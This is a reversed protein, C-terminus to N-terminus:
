MKESHALARGGDLVERVKRAFAGPSFPKALFEQKPTSGSQKITTAAYGSMYLIKLEPRSPALQKALEQGGMQPMVVDTILLHIPGPHKQSMLVADTGHSAALIHYGQQDLISHVMHRLSEEDEVILVTESGRPLVNSNEVPLASKAEETRPLYVKFTTGRDLESYVWIDGESQKIIGYVSSLGLGTGKGEEKTTFFPEFIRSQTATDMGCGTDTVALMVYSGAQVALRQQVHPEDLDVNDTEITLKGGTAMADRANVVLNIIVQEIQGPDVTVRGLSGALHTAFEINEGILRQLMPSMSTVVDNLDLVKPQLMQRRSFALLQRTLTAAREGAKYIEQVERRMPEQGVLRKMLLESYGTIVTLLNNFDHAVGGALQGVAEMKQSQRLREEFQRRETLDRALGQVEVPKGERFLLQTSIEVVVRRKDKTILPLEYTAPADGEMKREMMERALEVFQPDLMHAINMGLAEERTYGTLLEGARNISTFRGQLDHTYVIDNANEFLERYREESARLEAEAQQRYTIDRAFFCHIERGDFEVYNVAIELPITGGSKTRQRSETTLTRRTRLDDWYHRWKEPTLRREIDFVRMSLLEERTYGLSTAATENVYIFHGESDVWFAAEGARDIAFQTFRLAVEARKREIMQALYNAIVQMTEGLSPTLRGERPDALVLTGLVREKMKMPVCLFSEVVRGKLASFQYEPNGLAKSTFVARGSTAVTGSIARDVPVRSPETGVRIGVSGVCIMERTAEEYLEVAVIPFAFRESLIKPLNRYIAGLSEAELFLRSVISLTDKETEARRRETIDSFSCIVQTVKGETFRPVANLLLWVRDGASPRTLGIVVNHVPRGTAIAQAVPFDKFDFRSGDEHIVDWEQDFSTKGLLQGETLGLLNRAAPNSLLIEAKPGILLVGVQVDRLLKQFGDESDRLEEEIRRRRTIDMRYQRFLSAVCVALLCSVMVLVNLYRWKEALDESIYSLQVRISGLAAKVEDVARGRERRFESELRRREGSELDLASIDSHLTVMRTVAADTRSLFQRIERVFNDNKPLSDAQARYSSVLRQWEAETTDSKPESLDNELGAVSDELQNLKNILTVHRAAAENKRGNASIILSISWISLLQALLL